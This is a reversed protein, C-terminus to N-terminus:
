AEWVTYGTMTKFQALKRDYVQRWKDSDENEGFLWKCYAIVTTVIQNDNEPHDSVTVGLAAMEALCDSILNNLESDFATTTIRLALKVSALM